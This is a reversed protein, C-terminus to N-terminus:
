TLCVGPTAGSVQIQASTWLHVEARMRWTFTTGTPLSQDTYTTATRPSVHATVQLTTGKYREIVYGSAYTSPTATWTLVAKATFSLLGGCSTSVSLGSPPQPAAGTSIVQSASAQGTFTGWAAPAGAVATLAAWGLVCATAASTRRVRRGNM